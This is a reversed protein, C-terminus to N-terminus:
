FGNYYAHTPNVKGLQHLMDQFAKKMSEKKVFSDAEGLSINTDKASELVCWISSSRYQKMDNPRSSYVNPPVHLFDAVIRRVYVFYKVCGISLSTSVWCLDLVEYWTYVVEGQFNFQYSWLVHKGWSPQLSESADNDQIDMYELLEQRLCFDQFTIFMTSSIQFNKKSHSTGNDNHLMIIDQSLQKSIVDRSKLSKLLSVLRTNQRSDTTAVHHLLGSIGFKFSFYLGGFKNSLSASNNISSHHM